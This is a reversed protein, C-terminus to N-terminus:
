KIKSKEIPPPLTNEPTFIEKRVVLSSIRNVAKGSQRHSWKGLVTGEKLLVITPNARAVTRIATFDCKMVPYADLATGAFYNRAEELKNTVSFIPINKENAATSIKSLDTKWAKVPASFDTWFVLIAYSKALIYQTSDTDSTGTLSFSKIPPEANGKRILKDSRKVFSYEDLDDPLETPTFEFQKGGREYVFVIAFSDSIAGRPIQMKEAINNGTRFPLCDKVPLFSLTYWQIGFSFATVLMMAIANTSRSFLPRIHKRQWFLLSILLTLIIDKVFSQLPTIPICDGFCGCNKFKGSLYAYGTLFTFFLILLLLLWNFIRMQWGLLLAAGAIIEFAIILISLWLTHQNFASMGWLEFFEQMKYSLGLPDNAKVLGSFIFLLGVIVRTITILHKM